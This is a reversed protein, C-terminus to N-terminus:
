DKGYLILKQISPPIIMWFNIKLDLVKLNDLKGLSEPITKLRNINLRLLELSKLNGVSEPLDFLKNSSLNLVKLRSLLGISFPLHNLENISLDIMELSELLDIREPLEKLNNRRLFLKKLFRLNLVDRPVSSLGCKFLSLGTIKDAEMFYGITGRKLEEVQPIKRNIEKGILRIYRVESSVEKVLDDVICKNSADKLPTLPEGCKPCSTAVPSCLHCCHTCPRRVIAHTSVKNKHELSIEEKNFICTIKLKGM